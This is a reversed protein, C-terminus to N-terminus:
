GSASYGASRSNASARGPALSRHRAHTDSSESRSRTLPAILYERDRHRVIERELRRPLDMDRTFVDRPDFHRERDDREREDWRAEERNHGQREDDRSDIDRPDFDM